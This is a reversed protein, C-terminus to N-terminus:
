NSGFMDVFWGSGFGAGASARYADPNAIYEWLKTLEQHLPATYTFSTKCTDLQYRQGAYTITYRYDLADVYSRCDKDSVLTAEAALEAASMASWVEDMLARPITGTKREEGALYQYSRDEEIRFSPCTGVGRMCGGYVEGAIAYQSKQEVDTAAFEPLFVLLYLAGGALLGTLFTLALLITEDPKM